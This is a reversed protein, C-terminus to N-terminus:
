NKQSLVVACEIHDTYPFQDFAAFHTIHHSQTLEQLDRKLTESNCSIYVIHTFQTILQRTAEDLGARPPDVLVTSFNYEALNIHQLRRFPRVNTLAQTLEESSLRVIEVNHTQNKEINWQAAYVSTKSIETALVKNFYPSIPLTFNGIGCYLELFDDNNNKIKDTVWEIMMKNIHANPQTFSGEPQQFFWDKNNINLCETVFSDSLVVKQKKSRGIIKCNIKESIDKALAEWQANLPKHYILSVLSDGALTTLFEVQFLKQKLLPSNNILPHLEGMLRNVEASAIPFQTVKIISHKDGPKRLIFNAGTDDHWVAFEARMRYHTPISPHIQISPLTFDAFLLQLREVKQGLLQQYNNPDFQSLPM